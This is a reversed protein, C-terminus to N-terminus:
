RALHYSIGFSLTSHNRWASRDTGPPAAATGDDAPRFYSAPYGSQSVYQHVDFRYAWRSERPVYRIGGGFGFSFNTGFNYGFEDEPIFDSMLGVTVLASPVLGNWSKNGTLNIGIGVDGMSQLVRREGIVRRDANLLPNILTTTTPAFQLRAVLLAPGGIHTEYRVGYSLASQPTVGVPDDAGIYQGVIFTVAHKNLIDRYPSQDPPHGVQALLPAPLLFLTAALFRRM